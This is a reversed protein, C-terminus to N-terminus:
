QRFIHGCRQCLVSNEWRTYAAKFAAHRKSNRPGLYKVWALVTVAVGVVAAIWFAVNVPIITILFIWVSGFVLALLAGAFMLEETSNEFQPPTAIGAAVTKQVGAGVTTQNAYVMPLTQTNESNCSPCRFRDGSPTPPLVEIPQSNSIMPQPIFGRPNYGCNAGM